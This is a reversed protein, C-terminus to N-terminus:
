VETGDPQKLNKFEEEFEDTKHFNKCVSAFRLYAIPDIRKLEEMVIRGIEKSPIKQFFHERINGLINQMIVEIKRGSTGDSKIAKQLGQIIKEDDFDEEAGDRKIVVLEPRCYIEMTSFKHGCVNCKRRRRISIQDQVARTDTVKTDTSSCRPCKM